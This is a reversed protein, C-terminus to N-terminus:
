SISDSVSNQLRNSYLNWCSEILPGLVSCSPIFYPTLILGYWFMLKATLNWVLLKELLYPYNYWISWHAWFTPKGLDPWLNTKVMIEVKNLCQTAFFALVGYWLCMIISFPLFFVCSKDLTFLLLSLIWSCYVADFIIRYLGLAEPLWETISEFYTNVFTILVKLSLGNSTCLCPKYKLHDSSFTNIVKNM